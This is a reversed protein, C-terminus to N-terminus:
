PKAVRQRRQLFERYDKCATEVENKTLGKIYAVVENSYKKLAGGSDAWFFRSKEKIDYKRIIAQFVYSTFRKGHLKGIKILIDKQRLPHSENPNRDRNIIISKNESTREVGVVIDAEGIKKISELKVKFITMLYGTDEGSANLDHAVKTLESLFQGVVSTANINSASSIYSMADIPPRVGIPLLQWSVQNALDIQFANKLLSCYSAISTQALSYIIIGFNKENYFHIANNRYYSLFYLNKRIPSQPFAKPFYAEGKSWADQWSLIRYPQGRKKRYFVSQKNKSLLAKLALEWANLLLIVTCEDRYEFTPKNYIEIAAMMAAKSNGILKRYSSRYNM